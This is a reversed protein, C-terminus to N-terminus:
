EVGDFTLLGGVLGLLGPSIFLCNHGGEQVIDAPLQALRFGLSANICQVLLTRFCLAHRLLQADQREATVVACAGLCLASLM